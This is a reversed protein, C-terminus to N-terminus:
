VLRKGGHPRLQFGIRLIRQEEVHEGFEEATPRVSPFRHTERPPPPQLPLRGASARNREQSTVDEAAEVEFGAVILFRDLLAPQRQVVAGLVFHREVPEDARQL